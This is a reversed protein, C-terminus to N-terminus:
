SLNVSIKSISLRQNFEIKHKKGGIVEAKLANNFNQDPKDVLYFELENISHLRFEENIKKILELLKQFSNINQLQYGSTASPFTLVCPTIKSNIPIGFDLLFKPLIDCKKLRM